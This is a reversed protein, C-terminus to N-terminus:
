LHSEQTLPFWTDLGVRRVCAKKLRPSHHLLNDRDKEGVTKSVYTYIHTYIHTYIYIYICM